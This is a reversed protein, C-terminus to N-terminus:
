AKVEPEDKKDEADDKKGPEPPANLNALRHRAVQRRLVAEDIDALINLYQSEVKLIPIQKKQEEMRAQRAANYAAIQEPTPPTTEEESM